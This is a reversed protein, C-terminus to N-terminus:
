GSNPRGIRSLSKALQDKRDHTPCVNETIGVAGVADDDQADEVAAFLAVCLDGCAAASGRGSAPSPQPSPSVLVSGFRSTKRGGPAPLLGHTEAHRDPLM